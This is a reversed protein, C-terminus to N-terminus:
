TLKNKKQNKVIMLKHDIFFCIKSYLKFIFYNEFTFDFLLLRLEIYEYMKYSFFTNSTDM